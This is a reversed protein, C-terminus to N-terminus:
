PAPSRVRELARAVAPQNPDLALSRALLREVRERNQLCTEYLALENLTQPNTTASEFQALAGAAGRCDKTEHLLRARERAIGENDPFAAAARSLLWAAAAPRGAKAYDRAWAVVAISPDSRVKRLSRLLWEDASRSDGRERFLLALNFMPSYYEPNLRLSEEFATEAAALDKRTMLMWTGLNNWAGETMGPEPGGTPALNSTEGPSLYGLAVLKKVYESSEAASMATDAVRRVPAAPTDTRTFRLPMEFAASVPRGTMRTDGPVNLLALVTPAVDVLRAEGRTQGPRVGRGWLGIVGVPRHWFAATSWDGSALGCPRDDGWRFGHDSHVLLVAGDEDARRMWQGLIRDVTAYYAPVVRGYKAVDADTVSKCDTRPPTFAAFLHGVEDTGGFYVVGLDPRARDYLDRAIRQTVRTAGLVRGLGVVPNEMGAGSSLASAIESESLGLYPALDTAEIRGDRGVVQSVGAAFSAPFAVGERPLGSFLIPSARDSVFYGDVEEAPHTAWWGVVGVKRGAASAFNWAAPARRSRGSIPVKRGTAPDVEQFDLVRHIDPPVGTAATTWLMPSILPYDTTLRATYGESDLRRWNPMSGEAALRDLLEFDLGDLGIWIVRSRDAPPPGERSVVDVAEVAPPPPAPIPTVMAAPSERRCAAVAALLAPLLADARRFRMRPVM